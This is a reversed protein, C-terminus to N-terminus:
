RPRRRPQRVHYPFLVQDHTLQDLAGPEVSTTLVVHKDCRDHPSTAMSSSSSHSVRPKLM